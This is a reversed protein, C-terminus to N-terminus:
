RKNELRETSIRYQDKPIIEWIWGDRGQYFVPVKMRLYVGCECHIDNPAVSKKEEHEHLMYPGLIHEKKCNPCPMSGSLASAKALDNRFKLLESNM